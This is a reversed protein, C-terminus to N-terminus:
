RKLPIDQKWAPLDNDVTASGPFIRQTPVPEDGPGFRDVTEDLLWSHVESIRPVLYHLYIALLESHPLFRKITLINRDRRLDSSQCQLEADMALHAIGLGSGTLQNDAEALKTKVYRAKKEIASPAICQWTVVSGYHIAEIYRPDRYDPDAGAVLNYGSERVVHGCLLRALKTGFYLSSDRIDQKVAALNAPRVEGFGFEDRWPYSSLTVVPSSLARVLREALYGDPVHQLESTYTVDIHVSLHREDILNAAEQFLLKHRAQENTEYQGRQLRKCEVFIAEPAGPAVLRLDPTKAQGKAEDIFAVDFDDGAYNSALVLELIVSDPRVATAQLMRAARERAGYINNLADINAGIQKIWPVTQSGLALDFSRRDDLLSKAQALFAGAIDDGLSSLELDKGFNRASSMAARYSHQANELRKWFSKTNASVSALWELAVAIDLDEELGEETANM